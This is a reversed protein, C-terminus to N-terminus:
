SIIGGEDIRLTETKKNKIYVDISLDKGFEVFDKKSSSYLLKKEDLIDGKKDLVQLVYTQVTVKKYRTAYVYIVADFEATSALMIEPHYEKQNLEDSKMRRGFRREPDLARIFHKYEKDFLKATRWNNNPVLKYPLEVKKYEKLYQVRLAEEIPANAKHELWVFSSLSLIVLAFFVLSQKKM